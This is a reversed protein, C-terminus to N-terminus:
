QDQHYYVSLAARDSTDAAAVEVCRKLPYGSLVTQNTELVVQGFYQRQCVPCVDETSTAM